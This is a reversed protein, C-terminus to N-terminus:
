CRAKRKGTLFGTPLHSPPPNAYRGDGGTTDAEIVEGLEAGDAAVCRIRGFRLYGAAAHEQSVGPRAGPPTTSLGLSDVSTGEVPTKPSTATLALELVLGGITARLYGQNPDSSIQIETAALPKSWRGVVTCVSGNCRSLDVYLREEPRNQVTDVQTAAVDLRWRAGDGGIISVSGSDMQRYGGVFPSAQAPCVLAFVSAAVPLLLNTKM